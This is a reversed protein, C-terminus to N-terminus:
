GIYRSLDTPIKIGYQQLRKNNNYVIFSEINNLAIQQSVNSLYLGIETLAVVAGNVEKTTTDSFPYFGKEYLLKKSAFYSIVFRDYIKKICEYQKDQVASRKELNEYLQKLSYETLKNSHKDTLSTDIYSKMTGKDNIVTDHNFNEGVKYTKLHMHNMTQIVYLMVEWEPNNAIFEVACNWIGGMETMLKNAQEKTLDNRSKFDTLSQNYKAESEKFPVLKMLNNSLEKGIQMAVAPSMKTTDKFRDAITDTALALVQSGCINSAYDEYQANYFEETKYYAEATIAIQQQLKDIIDSTINLGSFASDYNCLQTQIDNTARSPTFYTGYYYKSYEDEPMEFKGDASVISRSVTNEETDSASLNAIQSSINQIDSKIQGLESQNDILFDQISQVQSVTDTTASQSPLINQLQQIDLSVTDLNTSITSCRSVIERLIMLLRNNTQKDNESLSDIYEKLERNTMDALKRATNQQNEQKDSNTEQKDVLRGQNDIQLNTIRVQNASLKTKLETRDVRYQKQSQLDQLVFKKRDQSKSICRYTPIM